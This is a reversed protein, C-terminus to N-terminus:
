RTAPQQSASYDCSASDPICGTLTIARDKVTGEINLLRLIQRKEEFTVVDLGQSILQCFATVSVMDVKSREIIKKLAQEERELSAKDARLKEQRKKLTPMDIEGETYLDLNRNQKSTLKNLERDIQSFREQLKADQGAQLQKDYEKVLLEPNRLAGAIKDWVLADAEEARLRCEFCRQEKWTRTSDSCRYYRYAKPRRDRDPVSTMGVFARGCSGCRLIGSLLYPYKSRRRLKERNNAIREQAAEWVQRTIIPPVPVAIWAEEPNRGKGRKRKNDHWVGAYTENRLIGRITSPSWQQCGSRTAVQRETLEEAIGQCSLGDEVYLRYIEKVVEAEGPVIELWGKREESRYVYGYPVRSTINVQGAKARGLRGRFTREIIKEREYEAIVGKIHKTLRGEPNDKYDGLVYKVEVGYRAFEEELFIQHGLNRGFRDVDHCVLIDFLRETVDERVQDLMPRALKAGSEDEIYEKVVQWNNRQCYERMAELQTPISYNDRQKDQSVRAYLAARM